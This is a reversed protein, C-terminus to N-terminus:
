KVEVAIKWPCKICQFIVHTKNTLVNFTENKCALCFVQRTNEDIMTLGVISDEGTTIGKHQSTM